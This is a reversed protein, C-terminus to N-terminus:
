LYCFWFYYFSVVACSSQIVNDLTNQKTNEFYKEKSMCGSLIISITLHFSYL